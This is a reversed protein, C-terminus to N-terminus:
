WPERVTKFAVALTELAGSRFEDIGGAAGIAALSTGGLYAAGLATVPIRLDAPDDTRVCTGESALRYRGTNWPCFSDEVDLVLAFPRSYRRAALARPVDVLRLWLRDQLTIRLARPDALLYRLPEDAAADYELHPHLDIDALFRWLAAYATQNLAVVEGVRVTGPEDRGNKLRYFAYGSAEGDPETHVVYRLRTAGERSQENEAFLYEWESAPRDRRGARQPRLAEYVKEVLPQAEERPLLRLTGPGLDVGPRFAMSRKEAQLWAGWTAAAYGFRGYIGAEAAYLTAIPEGNEHLDDLQRRMLATLIGRRRHTPTVGVWDVHAAPLTGGPITLVRLNAGAGAVVTGGDFAGLTRGLEIGVRAGALTDEDIDEGYTDCVTRYWAAFEDETVPRIPHV